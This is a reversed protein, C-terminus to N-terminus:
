LILINTVYYYQDHALTKNLQARIIPAINIKKNLALKKKDCNCM